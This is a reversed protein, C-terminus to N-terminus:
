IFGNPLIATQPAIEPYLSDFGRFPLIIKRIKGIYM